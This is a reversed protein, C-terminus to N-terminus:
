DLGDHPIPDPEMFTNSFTKSLSLFRAHTLATSLTCKSPKVTTFETGSRISTSQPPHSPPFQSLDAHAILLQLSIDLSIYLSNTTYLNDRQALLEADGGPKTRAEGHGCTYISLLLGKVNERGTFAKVRDHSMLQDRIPLSLRATM